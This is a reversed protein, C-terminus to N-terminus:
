NISKLTLVTYLVGETGGEVTEQICLTEQVEQKWQIVIGRLQEEWFPHVRKLKETKRKPNFM